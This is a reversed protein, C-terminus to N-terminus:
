PTTSGTTTGAAPRSATGSLAMSVVLGLLVGFWLTSGRILLTVAVATEVPVNLAVLLTVMILETGGIGGPLFTLAGLLNAFLFIFIGQAFSISGGLALVCYYFAYSEALWALLTLALNIASPGPALLRASLRLMRRIAAFLKLRKPLMRAGISVFWFSLRQNLLVFVGFGIVAAALLLYQLHNAFIAVTMVCLVLTGILDWIRDVIIPPALHRIPYGYKQRILWVRVLEGIKGPTVSFSFGAVYFLTADKLSILVGISRNLHWFRVSRIAYNVLALSLVVVIEAFSAQSLAAVFQDWKGFLLIAAVVLAINALLFWLMGKRKQSLADLQADSAAPQLRTM